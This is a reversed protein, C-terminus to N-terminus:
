KQTNLIFISDSNNLLNVFVCFRTRDKEALIWKEVDAADEVFRQKIVEISNEFNEFTTALKWKEGWELKYKKFEWYNDPDLLIYLKSLFRLSSSIDDFNQTILTMQAKRNRMEKLFTKVDDDLRDSKNLVRHAEDFFVMTYRQNVKDDPIKNKWSLYWRVLRLLLSLIFLTYEQDTSDSLKSYSFIIKQKKYIEEDFSKDNNLIKFMTHNISKLKQVIFMKQEKTLEDLNYLKLWKIFNDIKFYTWNTKQLYENLISSLATKNNEDISNENKGLLIMLLVEQKYALNEDTIKWILNPFDSWYEFLNISDKEEWDELNNYLKSFNDMNDFVIMQDKKNQKWLKNTLFYTKWAGSNWYIITNCNSLLNWDEDKWAMDFFNVKFENNSFYEKWLLMGDKQPPLYEKLVTLFNTINKLHGVHYAGSFKNHSLYQPNFDRPFANTILEINTWFLKDFNSILHQIDPRKTYLFMSHQYEFFMNKNDNVSKLDFMSSVWEYVVKSTKKDVSVSQIPKISVKYLYWLLDKWTEKNNNMVNKDLFKSMIENFDLEQYSMDWVKTSKWKLYFPFLFFKSGTLFNLTSDFIEQDTNYYDFNLNKVYLKNYLFKEYDEKWSLLNDMYLWFNEKLLYPRFTKRSYKLKKLLKDKNNITDEKAELNYLKLDVEKLKGNTLVLKNILPKIKVIQQYRTYFLDSNYNKYSNASGDEWTYFSIYYKKTWKYNLVYIEAYIKNQHLFDWLAFIDEEVFSNNGLYEYLLWPNNVNKYVLWNRQINKIM